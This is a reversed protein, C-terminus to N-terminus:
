KSKKQKRKKAAERMSIQSVRRKKGMEKLRPSFRKAQTTKKKKYKRAKPTVDMPSCETGSDDKNDDDDEESDGGGEEFVDTLTDEDQGQEKLLKESPKKGAGIDETSSSSSM